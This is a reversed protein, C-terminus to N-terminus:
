LTVPTTSATRAATMGPQRCCRSRLEPQAEDRDRLCMTRVKVAPTAGDSTWTPTNRLTRLRTESPAIALALPHADYARGFSSSVAKFEHAASGSEPELMGVGIVKQDLVAFTEVM